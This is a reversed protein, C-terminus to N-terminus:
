RGLETQISVQIADIDGVGSVRFVPIGSDEYWALLPLTSKRYVELRRRITQETDDGRGEREARGMVRRLLENEPVELNVVADLQVGRSRLLGELGEAQTVTRPFGDLVFGASAEPGELIGAIIGLIVEDPVLEGADMYSRARRGLETDADRADRLIDGTSVRPVGLAAALREGQTGKGAGPPGMILLRM